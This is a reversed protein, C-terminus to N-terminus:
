RPKSMPSRKEGDFVYDTSLHVLPVDLTRAASAVAGAGARNVAFALDREAEARDVATYAAASVIADPRAAEIAAIIAAADGSLDLEPRGLPIIEHGAIAAREVLSRVVQGDRGTVAIRV